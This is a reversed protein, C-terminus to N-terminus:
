VEILGWRSLSRATQVMLANSVGTINEKNHQPGKQGKETKEWHALTLGLSIGLGGSGGLAGRVALCLLLTRVVHDVEVLEATSALGVSLVLRGEDTVGRTSASSGASSTSAESSTASASTSAGASGSSGAGRAECASLLSVAAELAWGLVSSGSSLRDTKTKKRSGVNGDRPAWKNNARTQEHTGRGKNSQAKNQTNTLGAARGRSGFTSIHRGTLGGGGASTATTSASSTSAGTGSSRAVAEAAALGTV